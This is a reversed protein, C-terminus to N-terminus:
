INDKKEGKLYEGWRCNVIIKEKLWRLSSCRELNDTKKHM